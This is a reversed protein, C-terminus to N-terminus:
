RRQWQNTSRCCASAVTYVMGPPLKKVKREFTVKVTGEHFFVECAPRRALSLGEEKIKMAEWHEPGLASVGPASEEARPSGAEGAADLDPSAEAPATATARTSTAATSPGAEALDAKGRLWSTDSRLALTRRPSM